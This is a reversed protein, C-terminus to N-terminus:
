DASFDALTALSTSGNSPRGAFGFSARRQFAGSGSYWLDRAEALRLSRVDARLLLKGPVPRVLVQAFLDENNMLNFFPFLAFPRVTTLAQFFTEHRVDSPDSDGSSRSYGVRLWPTWRVSSLQYGGEVSVAWGRHDLTGWSGGQYVGWLAGDVQGAGLTAHGIYHGGVMPISISASDLLRVAAPRNDTKFVSDSDDRRDRYYMAFLRAESTGGLLAPKLTFTLSAIGVKSIQPWGEVDFGGQRPHAALMTLNSQQGDLAATAGDYTRQVHSFGINAILRGAIRARRIWEITPDATTAETGDIYDFRGARIFTTPHAPRKFTVFAQNLFFRTDSTKKHPFFHSAGAGMEGIPAPGRADDPLGLLTSNQLEASADFWRNADFRLGAKALVAGYGYDNNDGGVPASTGPDFWRWGEYRLRVSATTTLASPRTQAALPPPAGLILLGVALALIFM